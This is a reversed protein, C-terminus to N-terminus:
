CTTARFVPSYSSCFRSHVLLIPELTVLFPPLWRSMDSFLLIESFLAAFSPGFSTIDVALKCSLAGLCSVSSWPRVEDDLWSVSTSVKNKAGDASPIEVRYRFNRPQRGPLVQSGAVHRQKLLHLIPFPVLLRSQIPGRSNVFLDLHAARSQLHSTCFPHQRTSLQWATSWGPLLDVQFVQGPQL